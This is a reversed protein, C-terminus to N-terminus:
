LFVTELTSYLIYFVIFFISNIINSHPSLVLPQNHKCVVQMHWFMCVCGYVSRFACIRFYRYIYKKVCGVTYLSIFSISMIIVVGVRWWPLLSGFLAIWFNDKVKLLNYERDRWCYCYNHSEKKNQKIGYNFVTDCCSIGRVSQVPNIDIACLREGFVFYGVWKWFFLHGIAGNSPFPYLTSFLPFLPPSWLSDELAPRPDAKGSSVLVM